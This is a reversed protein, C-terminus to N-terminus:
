TVNIMDTRRSEPAISYIKSSLSATISIIMLTLLGVILCTDLVWPTARSQQTVIQIGLNLDLMDAESVLECVNSCFSVESKILPVIKKMQTVVAMEALRAARLIEKQGATSFRHRFNPPRM